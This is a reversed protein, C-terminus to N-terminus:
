PFPYDLLPGKDCPPARTVRQDPVVTTASDASSKRPGPGTSPAEWVIDGRAHSQRLSGWDSVHTCVVCVFVCLSMRM